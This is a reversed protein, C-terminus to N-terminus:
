RGVSGFVTKLIDTTRAVPNERILKEEQALKLFLGDLAKSTVYKDLDLSDMDVYDALFGAESVLSKYSSTVGTKRTAEQIIPLIAASLRKSSNKRFYETAATDGGNLIGRADELSMDRITDGFISLTEPVAQEAAHNMTAIFEDVLKDQGVARLGKGVTELVGPLPIRVQKDKLYGGDRGLLKIAKEAGISLADKLGRIIQDNSLAGVGPSSGAAPEDLAEKATELWQRWDSHAAAAFCLCAAAVLGTVLRKHGNM